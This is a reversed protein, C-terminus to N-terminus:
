RDEQIADEQGQAHIKSERRWLHSVHELKEGQRQAAAVATRASAEIQTADAIESELQIRTLALDVHKADLSSARRRLTFLGGVNTIGRHQEFLALRERELSAIGQETEDLRLRLKELSTRARMLAGFAKRERIQALGQIARLQHRKETSRM